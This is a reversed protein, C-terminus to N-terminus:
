NVPKYYIFVEGSELNTSGHLQFVTDVVTSRNHNKQLYKILGQRTQDMIAADKFYEAIKLFGKLTFEHGKNIDTFIVEIM